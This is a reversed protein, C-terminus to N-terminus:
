VDHSDEVGEEQYFSEMAEDNADNIDEKDKVAGSNPYFCANSTLGTDDVSLPM